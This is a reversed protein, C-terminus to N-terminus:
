EGNEGGEVDIIGIKKLYHIVKSEYDTYTDMFKPIRPAAKQPKPKIIKGNDKKESIYRFLDLFKIPAVGEFYSFVVKKDLYSEPDSPELVIADDHLLHTLSKEYPEIYYVQAIGAAIIHRACNHCPFTTCFLLCGKLSSKGNRAVSVIADMEAHVSRSFELLDKLRTEKSILTSIREAESDNKLERKLVTDIEQRIQKKHKFAYCEGNYRNMCRLDNKGDDSKYLGGGPKPVDNCGTAIIDGKKNIISAGVQRSICASRLAASQAMYMAYEDRTPTINPYGLLLKIYRDLVTELNSMKEHNNRIFFDSYQLTEILKQGYELEESEDRKMLFEADASSIGKNRELRNRRIPKACLIGFLYFMDGYVSRLLTIEDPHKLSDIIHAKRRSKKALETNGGANETAINEQREFAIEKVSFLALIDNGYKQRCNNGGSQANYIRNAEESELERKPADEQKLPIVNIFDSVSIHNTSYGFDEIREALKEAVTSIESGLPGCFALILEETRRGEIEKAPTLLLKDQVAVVQPKEKAKALSNM